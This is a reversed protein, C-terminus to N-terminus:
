FWLSVVMATQLKIKGRSKQSNRVVWYCEMINNNRTNMPKHTECYYTRTSQLFFVYMATPTILCRHRCLPDQTNNERM